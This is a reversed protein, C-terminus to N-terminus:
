RDVDPRDSYRGTTVTNCMSVGYVKVLQCHTKVAAVCMV